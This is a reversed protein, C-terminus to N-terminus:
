KYTCQLSLAYKLDCKKKSKEKERWNAKGTIPHTQNHGHYLPPKKPYITKKKINEGKGQRIYLYVFHSFFRCRISVVYRISVWKRQKRETGKEREGHGFYKLCYKANNKRTYKLTPFLYECKLYKSCGDRKIRNCGTMYWPVSNVLLCKLDLNNIKKTSKKKLQHPAQMTLNEKRLHLHFPNYSQM